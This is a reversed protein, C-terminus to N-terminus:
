FRIGSNWNNATTKGIYADHHQTRVSSLSDTSCSNHCASILTHQALTMKDVAMKQADSLINRILLPVVLRNYQKSSKKFFPQDASYVRFQHTDLAHDKKYSLGVDMCRKKMRPYNLLHLDRLSQKVGASTTDAAKNVILSRTLIKWKYCYSHDFLCRQWRTPETCSITSSSNSFHMGNRRAHLWAFFCFLSNKFIYTSSCPQLSSIYRNYANVHLLILSQKWDGLLVFTYHVANFPM